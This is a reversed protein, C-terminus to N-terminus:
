IENLFDTMMEIVVDNNEQLIWHSANKIIKLEGNKCYDMSRRAGELGLFADKEGWVILVPLDIIPNKIRYIPARYWNITSETFFPQQWSAIYEQKEEESLHQSINNRLFYFNNFRIFLESLKPLKFFLLYWSKLWQRWNLKPINQIVKPHFCNFIMLKDLRKSHNLTIQWAIYGGFDHGALSFKEYGFYSMLDLADQVINESHYALKGKPKDSLNFGRQDPAIVRFGQNMLEKMVKRWGFWADPYGHLLLIPRGNKDGGIAVNLSINPLQIHQETIENTM